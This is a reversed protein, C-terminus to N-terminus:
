LTHQGIFGKQM